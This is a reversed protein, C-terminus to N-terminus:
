MWRFAYSHRSTRRLHDPSANRNPQNGTMFSIYPEPQVIEMITITILFLILDVHQVFSAALSSPRFHWIICNDQRRHSGTQQCSDLQCQSGEFNSPESARVEEVPAEDIFDPVANLNSLYSPGEEEADLELADLESPSHIYSQDGLHHQTGVLKSTPKM